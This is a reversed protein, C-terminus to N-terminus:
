SMDHLSVDKIHRLKDSAINQNQIFKGYSKM